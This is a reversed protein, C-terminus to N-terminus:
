PNRGTKVDINTDDDRIRVGDPGVRFETDPDPDGPVATVTSTPGPVPVPVVDTRTETDTVVAEDADDAPVTTNQECGALSLSTLGAILVLTGSRRM